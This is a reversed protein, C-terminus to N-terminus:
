MEMDSQKKKRKEEREQKWALYEEDEEKDKIMQKLREIEDLLEQQNTEKDQEQKIEQQPQNTEVFSFVNSITNASNQKTKYDLHSYINATTGFDAHGLWEQIQKMPVGNALMISACSHRLDHFRIKRLNNKRLIKIFNKTLRNPLILRGINDVCVYDLYKDNYSKGLMTKNKEISEKKKLLLEEAQPLLPLVRHSTKNKM